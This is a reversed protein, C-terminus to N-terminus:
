SELRAYEAVQMILYVIYTHIYTDEHFCVFRCIIVLSFGVCKYVFVGNCLGGQVLLCVSFHWVHYDCSLQLFVRVKRVFQFRLTWLSM